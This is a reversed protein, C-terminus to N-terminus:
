VVGSLIICLRGNVTFFHEREIPEINNVLLRFSKMTYFMVLQMSDFQTVSSIVVINYM